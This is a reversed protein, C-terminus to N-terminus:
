FLVFSNLINIEACFFISQIEFTDNDFLLVIISRFKSYMFKKIGLTHKKKREKKREKKKGGRKDGKTVKQDYSM